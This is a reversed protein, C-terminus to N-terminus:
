ASTSPEPFVGCGWIMDCATQKLQRLYPSKEGEGGQSRNLMGVIMLDELIQKTTTTPINVAMSIERTQCSEHFYEWAHESYLHQLVKIRQNTILDRGVKKITKYVAHDIAGKGRVLALGTGIQVFTHVAERIERRMTNEHGVIRMAQEGMRGNDPDTNFQNSLHVALMVDIIEDNPLYLWKKIVAKVKYIM